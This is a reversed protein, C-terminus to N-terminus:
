KILESQEFQTFISQQGNANIGNLRKKAIEYYEKDIEFGIYQRNLEKSAICTTGSGLFFDAVIDNENSSNNVLTKIIEVPKITPHEYLEKDKKNVTTQFLKSSTAYSNYMQVGEDRIFLIYELDSLYKNNVTPIPNTKHWVLIDINQNLFYNLYQKIQNKNCFIYLNVKKMVRVLEGIFQDTLGSAMGKDQILDYYDRKNHFGGGRTEMEYPPDIVILDVSKDPIKKIAEYSDENYIENLKYEGLM